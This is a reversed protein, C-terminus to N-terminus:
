YLINELILKEKRPNIANIIKAITKGLDGGRLSLSGAIKPLCQEAFMKLAEPLSDKSLGMDGSKKMYELLTPITLILKTGEIDTYYQTLNKFSDKPISGEFRLKVRTANRYSYGTTTGDPLKVIEDNIRRREGREHESVSHLEEHFLRNDHNLEAQSYLPPVYSKLLIKLEERIQNGQDEKRFAKLTNTDLTGGNRLHVDVLENVINRIPDPCSDLDRIRIEAKNRYYADSSAFSYSDM